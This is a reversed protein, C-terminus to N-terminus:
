AVTSRADVVATQGNEVAAMARLLAPRLEDPTNVTEGHARSARALTAYDPPEAIQIGVWNNNREAFSDPYNMRLANRTANHMGNNNIIVLYPAKQVDSAWLAATPCGYVFTGDGVVAVVKRSPDAIKTGLAAGLAWGLSSGGSKFLSGPVSRKALRQVWASVGVSEDLLTWSDDLVDGIAACLSYPHIPTQGAHADALARYDAFRRANAAEVRSRRMAIEASRGGIRERIAATLMPMAIASDAQMAIDVPFGLLPISANLPDVDIYIMKCDPQPKGRSPIYPVEVDLALIVDADGVGSTADTADAWLPHNGPFSLRDGHTYVPAGILEALEVLLPVAAPNKGTRGTVIMPASANALWEAAQTIHEPRPAPPEVAAFRDPPAITIEERQSLLSEVPLTMYVPGPPESAAIQLARQVIQNPDAAERLEYDWKTYNRVIGHQDLQEQIWHIYSARAGRGQYDVRVPARGACILMGIQGRRANHIAGGIQETGVDVHVLVMQPRGTIMFHGHAAAGAVLEDLCLVVRPAAMGHAQRKAIAEQIPYTDTGSNIYLAEVGAAVLQAVFADAGDIPAGTPMVIPRDTEQLTM